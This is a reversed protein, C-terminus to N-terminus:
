IIELIFESIKKSFVQLNKQLYQRGKLSPFDTAIKFIQCPVNLKKSSLAIGYAEMDVLDIDYCLSSIISNRIPIDSSAISITSNNNSLEIKPFAQNVLFLSELDQKIFVESFTLKNIIKIEYFSGLSLKKNIIGSFGINIIKSYKSGHQTTAFIANAIGIGSIIIDFDSSIYKNVSIKDQTTKFKKISAIAEQHTAFIILKKTM